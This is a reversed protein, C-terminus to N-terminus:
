YIIDKKTVKATMLNILSSNKPTKQSGIFSHNNQRNQTVKLPNKVELIHGIKQISYILLITSKDGLLDIKFKLLLLL